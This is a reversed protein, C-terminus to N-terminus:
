VVCTGSVDLGHGLDLSRWSILRQVNWAVWQCLRSGLFLFFFLTFSVFVSLPAAIVLYEITKQESAKPSKKKKPNWKNKAKIKPPQTRSRDRQETFIGVWKVFVIFICYLVVTRDIRHEGYGDAMWEGDREREGEGEGDGERKRERDIWTFTDSTRVPWLIDAKRTKGKIKKGERGKRRSFCFADICGGRREEGRREEGRRERRMM